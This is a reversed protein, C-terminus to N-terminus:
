WIHNDQENYEGIIFQEDSHLCDDIRGYKKGRKNLIM